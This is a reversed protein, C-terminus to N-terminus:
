IKYYRELVKIMKEQHIEVDEKEWKDNDYVDLLKLSEISKKAKEMFRSKKSEENNDFPLKNSYSSNSSVSILALNGFSNLLNKGDEEEKWRDSDKEPNQPYIHEVSRNQRFQFNKIKNKGIKNGDIIQPIPLDDEIQHKKTWEKWLCYDLKHFWYKELNQFCNGEFYKADFEKRENDEKELFTILDITADKKIQTLFSGLWDEHSTSVNLFAQLVSLNHFKDNRETRDKETEEKRELKKIESTFDNGSNIVKIVYDDFLIRYEFLTNLFDEVESPQRNELYKEFESLLNKDKLNVDKKTYIKLIHLLFEPFNIISNIKDEKEVNKTNEVKEKKDELIFRLSNPNDVKGKEQEKDKSNQNEISFLDEFKDNNWDILKDRKTTEFAREIYQNMQACADWLEAYQAQKKEDKIEGLLRAKLIEHKELQTGRSNMTEFYKNLDVNEPLIVGIFQTQKYIYQAFADKKEKVDNAMFVEITKIANVMIENVEAGKKNDEHGDLLSQLYLQDDKRAIFDLRLKSKEGLFDSWDKHCDKLVFGMLWLTTLRQQGDIIDYRDSNKNKYLIINGLYYINSESKETIDKLDDLLKKEFADKLDELLKKVHSEEWAYLRQYIPINFYLDIEDYKPSNPEFDFVQM